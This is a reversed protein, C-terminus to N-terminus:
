YAGRGTLVVSPTKLLISFDLHLSWDRIYQIDLKTMDLFDLDSRGRIQWLGTIGPLVKSRQEAWFRFAASQGDSDLDEAPLPRPGVLSMEGTLVNILQPLEDLSYRRLIKGFPTIRPDNRMKFLHGTKENQQALAARNELGAYMSRFKLFTFHRGGKGVRSASFFIPGPSTVKILVAIVCFLPALLLLLCSSAIIDFVRKIVEQKRTVYVPKIELLHLGSIASLKLRVSADPHDITRTMTIGMRKSIRACRELERKGLSQDIILIGDLREKNVVAALEKSTGLVRVRNFVGSPSAGEPLIVGVIQISNNLSSRLREFLRSAIRGHGLMAIRECSPWHAECASGACKAGIRGLPLVLFCVAIFLFVFSRSLHNGFASVVLNLIAIVGAIIWSELPGISECTGFFGKGRRHIRIWVQVLFTLALLPALPPALHMLQAPELQKPFFPNLWPRLGIVTHWAVSISLLDFATEFFQHRKASAFRLTFRSAFRTGIAIGM